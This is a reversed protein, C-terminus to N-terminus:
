GIYEGGIKMNNSKFNNAKRLIAGRVIGKYKIYLNDM